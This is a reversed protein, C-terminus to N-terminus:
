ETQLRSHDADNNGEPYETRIDALDASLQAWDLFSTSPFVFSLIDLSIAQLPWCPGPPRRRWKLINQLLTYLSSEMWKRRAQMYMRSVSQGM